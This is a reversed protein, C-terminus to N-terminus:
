HHPYTPDKTLFPTFPHITMIRDDLLCTMYWSNFPDRVAPVGKFRLCLSRQSDYTAPTWRMALLLESEFAEFLKTGLYLTDPPRHYVQCFQNFHVRMFECAAYRRIPAPIWGTPVKAAVCTGVLGTALISLFSRRNM